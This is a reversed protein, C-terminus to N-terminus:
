LTTYCVKPMDHWIQKMFTRTCTIIGKCKVGAGSLIGFHAPIWMYQVLLHLFIQGPLVQILLTVYRELLVCLRSTRRHVELGAEKGFKKKLRKYKLFAIDLVRNKRLYKLLPFWNDM